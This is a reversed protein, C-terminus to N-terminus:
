ASLFFSGPHHARRKMEAIGGRQPANLQAAFSRGSSRDPERSFIGSVSNHFKERKGSKDETM